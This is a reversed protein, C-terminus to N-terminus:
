KNIYIYFNTFINYNAKELKYNKKYRLFEIIANM